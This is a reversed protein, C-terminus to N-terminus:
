DVCHEISTLFWKKFADQDIDLCVTANAEKKLFGKLDVITAGTTYRGNLEVDMFAEVVEFLDPRLLYAIATSDYMTLGTQMSGGRYRKFLQYFMEGIKNMEKIKMSDELLILAKLGLDLGVMVIPVGSDFVIKAAEPDFDINYESMVGSNGRTLSGGMFIIEKMKTKTEPYMKLLMAINTLPGIGVITIPEQSTLITERMANVAHEKLLLRETPEEFTYGEMGTEGHIAGANIIEKILPADLGKAVPVDKNFFQLLKLANQTVYDLGVNGAVTTILKVEIDESYLAIALAVADDIGPDTDIIVQKKVM